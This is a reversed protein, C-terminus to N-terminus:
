TEIVNNRKSKRKTGNQKTEIGTIIVQGTMDVQVKLNVHM